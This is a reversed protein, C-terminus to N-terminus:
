NQSAISLLSIWYLQTEVAKSTDIDAKATDMDTGWGSVWWYTVLIIFSPSHWFETLRQGVEHKQLCLSCQYYAHWKKVKMQCHQRSCPTQSRAKTFFFPMIHISALCTVWIPSQSSLLSRVSEQQVTKAWSHRQCSMVSVHLLM